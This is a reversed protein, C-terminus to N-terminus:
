SNDQIWKKAIRNRLPATVFARIYKEVQKFNEARTPDELGGSNDVVHFDKAGFVQQFKMINSQVQKWMSSVVDRKLVRQRTQNREQSVEESTNVFLMMTEYGLSKLAASHKAVKDVDKGTGDIIVGLRGALHSTEKKKTLDKARNRLEQGQPSAISDPDGLNFDEKSALYEYIDDSNITKMGLGSLLKRAVFSKGSGPGGSLFIAKFIAPDNVGEAFNDEQTIQEILM